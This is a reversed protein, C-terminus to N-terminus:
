LCYEEVWQKALLRAKEDFLDCEYLLTDESQSLQRRLRDAALTYEEALGLAQTLANAPATGKMVGLIPRDSQLVRELAQAFVPCTLEIGGIEDLLLIEGDLLRVGLTEFVQMRIEPKGSSFDLFTEGLKGDPSTLSFSLVRGAADRTRKTLFGGFRPLKNGAADLIATSKGIGMAGTLFLHRKM